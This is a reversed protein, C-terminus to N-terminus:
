ENPVEKMVSAEIIDGVKIDNFKEISLGCDFGQKVEKVDDKFRRLSSIKGSYIVIGERIVEVLCNRKAYGDTIYCGAITGLKTVKFTERVEAQGCVKDEYVPAFNFTMRADTPGTVSVSTNSAWALLATIM